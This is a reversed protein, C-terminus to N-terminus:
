LPLEPERRSNRRSNTTSPSASSRIFSWRIAAAHHLDQRIVIQVSRRPGDTGALFVSDELDVRDDPTEFTWVERNPLVLM